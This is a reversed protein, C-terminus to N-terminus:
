VNDCVHSQLRPSNGFRSKKVTMDDAVSEESDAEREGNHCDESTTGGGLKHRHKRGRQRVAVACAM